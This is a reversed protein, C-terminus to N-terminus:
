DSRSEMRFLIAAAREEETPRDFDYKALLADLVREAEARDEVRVARTDYLNGDIRVRARPDDLLNRAWVSDTGRAAVIYLSEGQAACWLTVSYPDDPATEVQINQFDDSFSWDEPVSAPEGRLAGGPIPGVPGCGFPGCACVLLAAIGFVRVQQLSRKM